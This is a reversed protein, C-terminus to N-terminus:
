KTRHLCLAWVRRAFFRGCQPGRGRFNPLNELNDRQRMNKDTTILGNDVVHIPAGEIWKRVDQNWAPRSSAKNLWILNAVIARLTERVPGLKSESM